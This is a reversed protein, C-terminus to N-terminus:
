VSPREIVVDNISINEDVSYTNAKRDIQFDHLIESQTHM